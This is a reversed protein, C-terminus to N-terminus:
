SLLEASPVAAALRRDATVLPANLSEALAAYTGDYASLGLDIAAGLAAPALEPGHLGLPLGALAELARAADALSLAEARVYGLLANAVETFALTATHGQVTGQDVAAVWEAGEGGPEIVSRVFVSADLVATNAATV